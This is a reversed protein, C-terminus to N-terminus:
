VLKWIVEKPQEHGKKKLLHSLYHHFDDWVTTKNFHHVFCGKKKLWMEHRKKTEERM